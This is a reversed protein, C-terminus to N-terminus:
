KARQLTPLFDRCKTSKGSLEPSSIMLALYSYDYARPCVAHLFM